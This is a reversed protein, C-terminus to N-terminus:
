RVRICKTRNQICLFKRSTEDTAIEINAGKMASVPPSVYFIGKDTEIRTLDGQRTSTLLKGVGTMTVSERKELSYPYEFFIPIGGVLCGLLVAALLAMKLQRNTKKRHATLDFSM